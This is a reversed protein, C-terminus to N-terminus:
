RSSKCRWDDAGGLRLAQWLGYALDRPSIASAFISVAKGAISCSLERTFTKRSIYEEKESRLAAKPSDFGPVTSFMARSTWFSTNRVLAMNVPKLASKVRGILM